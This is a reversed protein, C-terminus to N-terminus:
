KTVTVTKPYVTVIGTVIGIVFDVFSHQTVITYNDAGGAMAKADVTSLPVLGWLIYWQKASMETNNQAGNGVVFKQTFCGASSFAFMGLILLTLIKKKM